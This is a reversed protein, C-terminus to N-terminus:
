NRKPVVVWQRSRVSTGRQGPNIKVSLTRPKGDRDAEVPEVGLLYYASTEKLIRDFAGSGSTVTSFLVGGSTGSIQDLPRAVIASDRVPNDTPRSRRNSSAAYLEQRLDVHLTYITTNARAADQGVIVGYDELDPKGGSRDSALIGGSLLVVTKRRSSTSLGHLMGRLASIRQSIQGEEFQAMIHADTVLFRNCLVPDRDINCIEAIRRVFEPDRPPERPDRSRLATLDVIDSPTLQFRNLAYTQQDRRGVVRELDRVVNAHSTTLLLPAGDPYVYLGVQDTPQLSQVFRQAADIFQRTAAPPFSMVDIAVIFVRGEAPTQALLPAPISTLPVASAPPTGDPAPDFRLFDASAVRRKKGNITVDFREADLGLVPIGQGNLVQVDVAILDVTSRFIPQQGARVLVGASAVCAFVALRTWARRWAHVTM